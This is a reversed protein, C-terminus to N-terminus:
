NASPQRDIRDIVLQKTPLKARQFRLGLQREVATGVFPVTADFSATEDISYALVFDYTGDLGTADVVPMQMQDELLKALAKISQATATVHFNNGGGGVRMIPKAESGNTGVAAQQGNEREKSPTLKNTAKSLAIRYGQVDRKEVHTEAHFRQWCTKFCAHLTPGAPM